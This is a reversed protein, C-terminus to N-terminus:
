SLEALEAAPFNRILHIRASNPIPSAVEVFVVPEWGVV